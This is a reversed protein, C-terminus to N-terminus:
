VLEVEKFGREVTARRSFGVKELAVEEGDVTCKEADFPMGHFILTFEAYAPEFAGETNQKVVISSESGEVSFTKVSKEGHLYAEGDGADEYLESEHRGDIHYVHLELGADPRDGVFQRVPGQPLVAGARVFLPIRDLPADAWIENRGEELQDSWFNFWQGEPLYLWRGSAKKKSVPCVLINDGVAFEEARHYTEVNEQDLFFLSRLMPIGTQTHQWFTTYLYPLMRYRMEIWHRSIRTFKEGFSWPEQSGHEGSSHTRCLPHFVGMALWRVYLEGDPQEIFGGIDSGAFSYGSSALRQCQTNAIRLHEWSAVNDGTWTSAYRQVGAYGSRTITFPRGHGLAKIGDNTARVMQMGFINHAKRHSCRNGEYHFRVDRPFTGEEFVAPENMDNWVGAVGDEQMLGKFLQGWWERVEDRTYDPFVCLGPWVSGKMHPGDGRRCFYDKEMGDVYVRYNRDIKIGPDIMVVRQFGDDKLERIMKPPDPFNERNWTFCRYGDMYDIDLYIADCPIKLERFKSAIGKFEEETRYSWKCQHYGLAWMPPLQPKGTLRAYTQLVEDASPGHIYYYNMEGGQAWFSTVNSRENGFDFFSRFSNDFFTGYCTGNHLGLYFPINKYLPDSKPGFGYTDSGWLQMRKGRLNLECSKDGLGFFAEGGQLRRSMKVIDGGYDNNTEWHFGREDECVPKGVEDLVEVRLAKKEVRVAVLETKIEYFDAEESFVAVGSAPVYEPDIAYSFEEEFLGDPCYRFRILGNELVIVRLVVDNECFFRFENEGVAEHRVVADPFFDSASSALDNEMYNGQFAHDHM